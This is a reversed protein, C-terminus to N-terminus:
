EYKKGVVYMPVFLGGLGGILFVWLSAFMWFDPSLITMVTSIVPFLSVVACSWIRVVRVIYPWNSNNFRLGAMNMRFGFDYYVYIKNEDYYRPLKMKVFFCFYAGFVMGLPVATFVTPAIPGNLGNIVLGICGIVLSFVYILPWSSKVHYARLPKEETYSIATKVLEEVQDADIPEAKEMRECMLLETVSVGLLESLPILLTTDPISVATEWKSVAKDSVFLQEALEKQTYGKEKRLQAVFAGFKKKDIEYM